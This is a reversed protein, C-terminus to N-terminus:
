FYGHDRGVPHWYCVLAELCQWTNGTPCLWKQNPVVPYLVQSKEQLWSEWKIVWESYSPEAKVAGTFYRCNYGFIVEPATEFKFGISESFRLWWPQTEAIVFRGEERKMFWSHTFGGQIFIRCKIHTQPHHHHNNNNIWRCRSGDERIPGVPHIGMTKEDQKETAQGM